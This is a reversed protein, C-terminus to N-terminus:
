MGVLSMSRMPGSGCTRAAEAREADGPSQDRDRDYSASTIRTDWILTANV